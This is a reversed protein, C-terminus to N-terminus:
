TQQPLNTDSLLGSSIGRQMLFIGFENLTHVFDQRRSIVEKVSEIANELIDLGEQDHLNVQRIIELLTKRTQVTRQAVDHWTVLLALFFIILIYNMVFWSVM